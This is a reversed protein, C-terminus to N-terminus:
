SAIGAAPAAICLAPCYHTDRKGVRRIGAAPYLGALMREYVTCASVGEYLAMTSVPVWRRDLEPRPIGDVIYPDLTRRM